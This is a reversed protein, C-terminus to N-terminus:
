FFVLVLLIYQMLFLGVLHFSFNRGVTWPVDFVFLRECQKKVFFPLLDAVLGGNGRVRKYSVRIGGLGM